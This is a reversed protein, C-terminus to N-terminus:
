HPLLGAGPHAHLRGFVTITCAQQQSPWHDGAAVKDETSFIWDRPFVSLIDDLLNGVVGQVVASPSDLWSLRHCM